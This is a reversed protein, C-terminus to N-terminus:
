LPMMWLNTSVKSCCDIRSLLYPLVQMNSLFLQKIIQM